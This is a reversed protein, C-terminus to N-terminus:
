TPTPRRVRAEEQRVEGVGAAACGGHGDAARVRGLGEGFAGRLRQLAEGWAGAPTDVAPGTLHHPQHPQGAPAPAGGMVEPAGDETLRRVVRDSLIELVEPEGDGCGKSM